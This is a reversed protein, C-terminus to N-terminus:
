LLTPRVEGTVVISINSGTDIILSRSMGEIEVSVTPIGKELLNSCPTNAAADDHASLQHFSCGNEGEVRKGSEDSERECGAERCLPKKKAPHRKLRTPCERAFHGLGQCEYCRVAAQTRANRTQSNSPRNSNRPSDYRQSRLRGSAQKNTTRRPNSGNRSSRSPSRSLLHVSNDFSM